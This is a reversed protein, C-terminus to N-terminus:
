QRTPELSQHCKLFAEGAQESLSSLVVLEFEEEETPAHAVLTETVAALALIAHHGPDALGFISAGALLTEHMHGTALNWLAGQSGAHIGWSSMAYYPRWYDLKAHKELDALTPNKKKLWESAWGYPNLYDRGFRSVLDDRQEVVLRVEEETVAELGAEGQFRQHLLAAKARDVWDHLLYRETLENPGGALVEAVVMIEHLTRWRAYAASAHGHGLLTRVEASVSCARAQLRVLAEFPLENREAATASYRENFSMGLKLALAHCLDYLGLAESWM